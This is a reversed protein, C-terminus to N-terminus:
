TLTSGPLCDYVSAIGLSTVVSSGHFHIGKDFVSASLSMVEIQSFSGSVSYFQLLLNHASILILLLNFSRYQSLICVQIKGLGLHQDRLSAMALLLLTWVSGANDNYPLLMCQVMSLMIDHQGYWLAHCQRTIFWHAADPLPPGGELLHCCM